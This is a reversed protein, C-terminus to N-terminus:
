SHAREQLVQELIELFDEAASDETGKRWIACVNCSLEDDTLPIARADGLDLQEILRKRAIVVGHGANCLAAIDHKDHIDDQIIVGHTKSEVLKALHDYLFPHDHRDPLLVLEGNSLQHLSIHDRDYLAHEKPVVVSFTETYLPLTDWDKSDMEEFLLAIAIDAKGRDLLLFLRHEWTYLLNLKMYPNKELFRAYVDDMFMDATAPLYAVCLRSRTRDAANKMAAIASKYCAITKEIGPILAKGQPTLTVTNRDRMFLTCGMEKELAQIHRSFTSQSLHCKAASTTFNLEKSLIVFEKLIEIDM